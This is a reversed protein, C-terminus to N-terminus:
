AISFQKRSNSSDALSTADVTLERPAGAAGTTGGVHTDSLWAFTFPKTQSGSVSLGLFLFLLLHKTSRTM